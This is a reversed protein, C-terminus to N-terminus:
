KVVVEDEAIGFEKIKRWLTTRGIGLLQATQGLNGRAAHLATLITQKEAEALSRVPETRATGPLLAQRNRISQPLHELQIAGGDALLAVRELVSELERVNGPWPYVCLAALADAALAVPHNLQTGLRELRRQILIPIDEARERLPTLHIAFSSLRFLLASRVVGEAAHDELAIHSSAIVRVDVPIIRTGGLRIVDDTEIVRLLAAQADLPLAEIEELFLTGGQALEFKSPQGSASVSAYAGAEFGLFEGLVLERPLARCNIALFPGAAWRGSNHIARAMLGKGTGMEGTILVCTKAAAAALAQRRVAKASASKGIWEDLTVRAHSGAMRHFLERVQEIRRLTAIYALPGGAADRVIRLSVLCERPLGEVGISTELDNVEEGAAGARVVAAPLTLYANLPHGVAAAPNLGLLEGAQANLHTLLGDASWAVVGESIANLTANLEAAHLNAEQVFEDASLQNEVARAAAVVLGLWYAHYATCQGLLGIAGIARGEKLDFVPAAASCLPHLCDLFHEPGVVLAPTSDTVSIGLATTGVRAESLFAGPRLGLEEIWQLTAPHGVVDL